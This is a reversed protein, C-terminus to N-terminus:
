DGARDIVQQYGGIAQPASGLVTWTAAEQYRAYIGADTSPYADAATKFKTLAAQARERETLYSLSGAGPQGPAAPAGVRASQVVLAEALLAHARSEVRTHWAYYGIAIVAVVAVAAVVWTMERRRTELGERAQRALNQLENEKLHHRETRKM